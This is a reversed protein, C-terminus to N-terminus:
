SNCSHGEMRQGLYLMQGMPDKKRDLDAVEKGRRGLDQDPGMLLRKDQEM